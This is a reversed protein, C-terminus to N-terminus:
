AAEEYRERVLTEIVDPATVGWGSYLIKGYRALDLRGTELQKQFERLKPEAVQLYYWAPKGNATATIFYILGAAGSSVIKSQYYTTM